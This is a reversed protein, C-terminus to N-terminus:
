KRLLKVMYDLNLSQSEADSPPKAKSKNSASRCRVDRLQTELRQIKERAELLLAALERALVGGKPASSILELRKNNYHRSRNM